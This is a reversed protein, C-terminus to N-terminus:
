KGVRAASFEVRYELPDLVDYAFDGNASWLTVKIARFKMEHVLGCDCCKMLYGDMKPTVEEHDAMLKFPGALLARMEDLSPVNGSVSAEEAQVPDGEARAFAAGAVFAECLAVWAWMPSSGVVRDPKRSEVFDFAANQTATPTKM